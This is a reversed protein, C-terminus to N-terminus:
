HLLMLMALVMSMLINIKEIMNSIKFSIGDFLSITTDKLPTISFRSIREELKSSKNYIYIAILFLILIITFIGQFIFVSTNSHKINLTVEKQAINGAQDSVIYKLKKVGKKSFDIEDQNSKIQSTLNKDFNDTAIVNEMINFKKGLTIEYYNKNTKIVPLEKDIVYTGSTTKTENMFGDYYIIDIYYTGTESLTFQSQTINIKTIEKYQENDKYIILKYSSYTQDPNFVINIDEKTPQQEYINLGIFEEM